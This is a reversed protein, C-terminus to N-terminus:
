EKTFWEVLERFEKLSIANQKVWGYLLKFAEDDGRAFLKNLRETQKETSLYEILQVGALEQLRQKDM